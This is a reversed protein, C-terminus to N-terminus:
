SGVKRHRAEHMVMVRALADEQQAEDTWDCGLCRAVHRTTRAGTAPDNVDDRETVIFRGVQKM